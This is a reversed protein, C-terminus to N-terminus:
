SFFKWKRKIIWIITMLLILYMLLVFNNFGAYSRPIPTLRFLEPLLPLVLSVFLTYVGWKRWQLLEVLSILSMVLQIVTYLTFWSPLIGGYASAAYNPDILLYLQFPINLGPIILLLTLLIGRDKKM